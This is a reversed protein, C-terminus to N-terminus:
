KYHQYDMCKTNLEHTRANKIPNIM